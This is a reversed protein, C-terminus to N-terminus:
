DTVYDRLYSPARKTRNSRRSNSTSYSPNEVSQRVASQSDLPLEGADAEPTSPEGHNVDEGGRDPSLHDGTPALHRLPVTSNRGDAFRVHAYLPNAEVLTVEDVIPDYKCHRQQRKYLVKQNPNLLWTPLSTGSTSKRAHNFMREHPTSNTSTSLLSRISHLADPLVTEWDSVDLDLSKLALSVTKWVIGNYREVLGNGQPNYPSTRSTAIGREHLFLKLQDSM